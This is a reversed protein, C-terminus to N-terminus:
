GGAGGGPCLNCLKVESVWPVVPCVKRSANLGIGQLSTPPLILTRFYIITRNFDDAETKYCSRKKQSSNNTGNLNLQFPETILQEWSNLCQFAILEKLKEKKKKSSSFLHLFNLCVNISKLYRRGNQVRLSRNSCWCPPCSPGATSKLGRSNQRILLILQEM